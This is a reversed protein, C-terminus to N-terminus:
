DRTQCTQPERSGEAKRSAHLSEAKLRTRHLAKRVTDASCGFTECIESVTEVPRRHTLPNM